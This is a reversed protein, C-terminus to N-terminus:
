GIKTLSGVGNRGPIRYEQVFKMDNTQQNFLKEEKEVDTGEIKIRARKPEGPSNKKKDRLSKVINIPRDFSTQVKVFLHYLVKTYLM